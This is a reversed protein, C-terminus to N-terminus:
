PKSITTPTYLLKLPQRPTKTPKTATQNPPTTDTTHNKEIAGKNLTYITKLMPPKPLKATNNEVHKRATKEGIPSRDGVNEASLLLGEIPIQMTNRVGFGFM